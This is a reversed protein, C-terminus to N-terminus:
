GAKVTAAVKGHRFVRIVGGSQSVVIGIAETSYTMAAVSSHRTGLGKQIKVNGTDITIYRGAAEVVGDGSIVFVGDLQAFEKINDCIDSNTIMREEKVYGKFPNLVLQKSKALVNASDGVLFATGISRGERGETSIEIAIKIVMEFVQESVGTGKLLEKIESEKKDSKEPPAARTEMILDSGLIEDLQAALNKYYSIQSRIVSIESFDDSIECADMFKKIAKLYLERAQRSDGRDQASQAKKVINRGDELLVNKGM